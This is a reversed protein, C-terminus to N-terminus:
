SFRVHRAFLFRWFTSEFFNLFFLMIVNPQVGEKIRRRLFQEGQNGWPMYRWDAKLFPRIGFLMQVSIEPLKKKAERILASDHTGIACNRASYYDNAIQVLRVVNEKVAQREKIDGPYAGKVIRVGIGRSLCIRLCKEAKSQNASIAVRFNNGMRTLNKVRDMTVDITEPGEMDIEFKVGSATAKQFIIAALRKALWVDFKLGLQSLKISIALRLEPNAKKLEALRKIHRLYIKAARIANNKTATEEGLYDSIVGYGRAHLVLAMELASKETEGAIYCRLGLNRLFPIKLLFLILWECIKAARM